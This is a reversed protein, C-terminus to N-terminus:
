IVIYNIKKKMMLVQPQCPWQGKRMSCGLLGYINKMFIRKIIEHAFFVKIDNALSFLINDTMKPLNYYERFKYVEVWQLINDKNAKDIDFRYQQYDTLEFTEPDM